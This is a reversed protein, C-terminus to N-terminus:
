YAASTSDASGSSGPLTLGGQSLFSGHTLTYKPGTFSGTGTFTTSVFQIRSNMDAAVFGNSFALAGSNGNITAGTFVISSGNNAVAFDLTTGTGAVKQTGFVNCLSQNEAQIFIAEPMNWECNMLDCLSAQDIQVGTNFNATSVFSIGTVAAWLGDRIQLMTGVDSSTSITPPNALTSDGNIELLRGFAGFQDGDLEIGESINYTAGPTLQIQNPGDTQDRITNWANLITAFASGQTLGDNAGGADSGSPDVYFAVAIEKQLWRQQNPYLQWTGGINQVVVSQNPWLFFSSYGNIVLWKARGADANYLRVQFNSNFGSAAPVTVTYCNNGGLSITTNADSQAVSYTTTKASSLGTEPVLRVFNTGDSWITTTEGNFVTVTAGSSMGCSLPYGGTTGNQVVIFGYFTPWRITATGSLSGSFEYATNQAQSGTLTTNGSISVSVTGGLANDILAFNTNLLGGWTNNDAGVTPQTFGKAPTTPDPM